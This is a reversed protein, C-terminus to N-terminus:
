RRCPDVDYPSFHDPDITVQIDTHSSLFTLFSSAERYALADRVYVRRLFSTDLRGPYLVEAQPCTPDEPKGNRRHPPFNSYGHLIPEAYLAQLGCLGDNQVVDPYANNTTAFYVNCHSLIEPDFSLIVWWIGRHWRNAASFFRRNINNISLNVHDFWDADIRKVANVKLVYEILQEDKLDGRPLVARTFCIGLLGKHTTFHVIERIGQAAAFEAITNV